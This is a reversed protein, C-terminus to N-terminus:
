FFYGLVELDRHCFVAPRIETAKPQPNERFRDGNEVFVILSKMKAIVM